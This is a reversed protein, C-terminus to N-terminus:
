TYSSIFIALPSFHVWSSSKFVQPIPIFPVSTLFPTYFIQKKRALRNSLSHLPSLNPAIVALLVLNQTPFSRNCWMGEQRSIKCVSQRTPREEARFQVLRIHIVSPSLFDTGTSQYALSSLGHPWCM